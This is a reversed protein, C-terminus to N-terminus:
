CNFLYDISYNNFLKKTIDFCEQLTFEKKGTLKKLMEGRDVNICKAMEDVSVNEKKAALYLNEFRM